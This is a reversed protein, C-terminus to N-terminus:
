NPSPPLWSGAAGRNWVVPILHCRHGDRNVRHAQHLNVGSDAPLVCRIRSYPSSSRYDRNCPPRRRSGSCTRDPSPTAGISWPCESHGLRRVEGGRRRVQTIEAGTRYGTRSPNIIALRIPLHQGRRLQSGPPHPESRPGSHDPQPGAVGSTSGGAAVLVHPTRGVKGSAPVAKNRQPRQGGADPQVQRLFAQSWTSGGAEPGRNRSLGYAGRRAPDPGLLEQFMKQGETRYIVLPDTARLCASRDRHAPKGHCDPTAGLSHRHGPAVIGSWCGCRSKASSPKGNRTPRSPTNTSHRTSRTRNGSTFRTKM